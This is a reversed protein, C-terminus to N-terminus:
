SKSLASKVIFYQFALISKTGKSGQSIKTKSDKSQAILENFLRLKWSTM